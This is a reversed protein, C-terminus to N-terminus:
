CDRPPEFGGKRVLLLTGDLRCKALVESGKRGGLIYHEVANQEVGTRSRGTSSLMLQLLNSWQSRVPRIVCRVLAYQRQTARQFVALPGDREVIPLPCPPRMFSNVSIPRETASASATPSAPCRPATAPQSGRPSTRTM